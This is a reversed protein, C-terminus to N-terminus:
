RSRSPRTSSRRPAARSRDERGRRRRLVADRDIGEYPRACDREAKGHGVGGGRPGDLARHRPDDAAAAEVDHANLDKMKQEAIERVQAMTVKGVFGRGRADPRGESARGGQAPLLEGAADQHRLHLLPGCVRHHGGPDAHGAEMGQTAANFQRASSWSTSAASAWTGSRGAAVSQGQGAPIQLKIYGEIKKAM